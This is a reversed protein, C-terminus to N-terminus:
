ATYCRITLPVAHAKGVANTVRADVFVGFTGGRGASVDITGSVLSNANVGLVHTPGTVDGSFTGCRVRFEGAAGGTTAIRLDYHLTRGLINGRGEAVVGFAGGSAYPWQLADSSVPAMAVNEQPWNWGGDRHEWALRKDDGSHIFLTQRLGGGASPTADFLAIASKGGRSDDRVLSFGRQRVNPGLNTDMPQFEGIWLFNIKDVGGSDVYNGLWRMLGSGIVAGTLPNNRLIADVVRQTYGLNDLISPNKPAYQQPTTM